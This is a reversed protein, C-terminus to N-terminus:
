SGYWFVMGKDRHVTNVTDNSIVILFRKILATKYINENCWDYFIKIIFYTEYNSLLHNKILSVPLKHWILPGRNHPTLFM